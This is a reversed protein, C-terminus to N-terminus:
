LFVQLTAAVAFGILIAFLFSLLNRVVTFRLGFLSTELPLQLIGLSVWALLFATVASLSIGERLLEGGLIYSIVPQGISIGGILTGTLTDILASGSFLTHLMEPSVFAQFLGVLGIVGVLMPMISLLSRLSKALAERLLPTPVKM